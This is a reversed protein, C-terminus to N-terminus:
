CGGMRRAGNSEAGLRAVALFVTVVCIVANYPM